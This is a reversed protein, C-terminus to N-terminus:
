RVVGCNYTIIVRESLCRMEIPRKIETYLTDLIFIYLYYHCDYLVIIVYRGRLSGSILRVYAPSNIIPDVTM